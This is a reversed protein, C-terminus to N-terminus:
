QAVPRVVKWHELGPSLNIMGTEQFVELILLLIFLAVLAYALGRQIVPKGASQKIGIIAPLVGFVLVVGFGGVVDLAKLFLEPWILAVLFPPLFTLGALLPRNGKLQPPLLDKIFSMLGVGVAIYSTLIALMSFFNVATTISSSKLAISLPINIPSGSQYAALLNGQGDGQLPLAGLVAVIWIINLVLPILTGILFAKFVASPDWELNKCVSPLVIHFALACIIIPLAGPLLEWDSYLLRGPKLDTAVLSIMVLFVGGLIIMLIANGKVVMASGFLTFGTMLAFFVIMILTEHQQMGLLFASIKAGGLLYAVMVGYFIIFYGVTTPWKGWGKLERQFVTSLDIDPDRFRLLTRVLIWGTAFMAAWLVFVALLAPGAGAMGTKVPLGLTGVGVTTGALLLGSAWIAVPGTSKNPSGQM